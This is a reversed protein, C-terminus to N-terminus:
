QPPRVGPEGLLADLQADSPARHYFRRHFEVVKQRLDLDAFAQPYLLQGAWWAGLLRNPGPPFDFWGFPLKPSLYLRRQAVADVARWLPDNWARAWFNPDTTLIVAPNWLLVQEPSVTVLGARAEAAVNEAGLLELVEVNISGRGGTQLGAPGRGYYVRPREAVPVRAVRAKIDALEHEFWTALADAAAADGSLRGLTRLTAPTAELRGDFLAYPIGTQAQVREALSAYSGAVFGVDVILDPRARLVVEVNATNGRGTLRGLEPLAAARVDFFAAERPRLARTWGLLKAPAIAYLLVSAPPGATYVREVRAPVPITRGTADVLPAQALALAPVLLLPLVGHLVSM